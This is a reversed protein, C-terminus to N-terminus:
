ARVERLSLLSQPSNHMHAFETHKVPAPLRWESMIHEIKHRMRRTQNHFSIANLMAFGRLMCVISPAGCKQLALAVLHEPNPVVVSQVIGVTNPHRDM